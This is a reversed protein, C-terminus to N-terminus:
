DAVKEIEGEVVERDGGADCEQNEVPEEFSRAQPPVAVWVMSPRLLRDHITYGSQLESTVTPETVEASEKSAVAEHLTPDFIKGVAEIKEVGHRRLLEEQQRLTMRLGQKLDEVSGGAELARELNDIVGLFDKVADFTGLRRLEQKERDTRKRYNDFDALTRMLCERLSELEAPDASRGAEETEPDRDGAAADELPQDEEIVEEGPPDDMEDIQDSGAREVAQVADQIAEDLDSAPHKELDLEYKQDTAEPDAEPNRISQKDQM